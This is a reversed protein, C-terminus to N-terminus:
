GVAGPSPGALERALWRLTLLQRNRMPLVRFLLQYAAAQPSHGAVLRNFAANGVRMLTGRAGRGYYNEIAQLMSAYEAAHLGPEGNAAPLANTFRQLGAQRLITALGSQGM